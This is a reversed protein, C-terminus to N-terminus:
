VIRRTGPDAWQIDVGKVLGGGGPDEWKARAGGGRFLEANGARAGGVPIQLVRTAAPEM